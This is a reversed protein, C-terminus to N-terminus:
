ITQIVKSFVAARVEVERIRSCQFITLLAILVSNGPLQFETKELNLTMVEKM